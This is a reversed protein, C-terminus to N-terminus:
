RRSALQIRINTLSEMFDKNAKTNETNNLQVMNKVEAIAANQQAHIAEDQKLHETKWTLLDGVDGRLSNGWGAVAILLTVLIALLPFPLTISNDPNVKLAAM